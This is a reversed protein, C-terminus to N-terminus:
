ESAAVLSIATVMQRATILHYQDVPTIALALSLGPRPCNYTSEGNLSLKESPSLCALNFHTHKLQFTEELCMKGLDSHCRWTPFGSTPQAAWHVFASSDTTYLSSPGWLLMQLASPFRQATSSSCTAPLFHLEM